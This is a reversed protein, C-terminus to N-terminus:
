SWTVLASVSTTEATQITVTITADPSLMFLKTAVQEYYSNDARTVRVKIKGSSRVMIVNKVVATLVTAPPNNGVGAPALVAEQKNYSAEASFGLTRSDIHTRAGQAVGFIAYRLGIANTSKM